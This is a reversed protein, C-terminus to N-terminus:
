KKVEIKKKGTRGEDRKAYLEELEQSKNNYESLSLFFDFIGIVANKASRLSENASRRMDNEKNMIATDIEEM